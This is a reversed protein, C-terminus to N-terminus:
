NRRDPHWTWQRAAELFEYLQRGLQRHTEHVTELREWIAGPPADVLGQYEEALQAVGERWAAFAPIIPDEDPFRIHLRFAAAMLRIHAAKLEDVSANLRDDFGRRRLRPREPLARELQGSAEGARNLVDATTNIEGVVADLADRTADRERMARNHRLTRETTWWALAAALIGALVVAAPVLFPEWWHRSQTVHVTIPGALLSFHV